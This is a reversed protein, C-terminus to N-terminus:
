QATVGGDIVLEIGTVYSAEDSALYLMAGAVEEPRGFRNMPVSETWRRVLEPESSFAQSMPTDFYGPLISNARINASAYQIATAKTFALISGKAAHYATSSPSGIIGFISSVNIISGGGSHKMAPIVSRTGLFAGKAHVNMQSDWTEISTDEIPTRSATGANNVLIDIKGFQAITTEVCREWDKESTVDLKCFISEAGSDRIQMATQEGLEENIDSIVVSAGERAFAWAAAGGFGMLAETLGAASGTIIAVKGDLRM